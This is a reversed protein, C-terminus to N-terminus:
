CLLLFERLQIGLNEHNKKNIEINVNRSPVSGGEM